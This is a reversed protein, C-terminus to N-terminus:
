PSTLECGADVDAYDTYEEVAGTGIDVYCCGTHVDANGTVVATFRCPGCYM